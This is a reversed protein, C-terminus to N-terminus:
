QNLYRLFKRFNNYIKGLFFSKKQLNLLKIKKFFSDDRFEFRNELYGVATKLFKEADTKFINQENPLLNKLITNANSGFFTDKIRCQLTNMLRTMIDHMELITYSDSELSIITTHFEQM